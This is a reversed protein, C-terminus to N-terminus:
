IDEVTHVCTRVRQDHAGFLNAGFCVLNFRVQGQFTDTFSIKNHRTTEDHTVNKSDHIM